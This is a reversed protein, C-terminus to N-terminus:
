ASRKSGCCWEGLNGRTQSMAENGTEGEQSKSSRSYEIYLETM